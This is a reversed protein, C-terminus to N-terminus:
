KDKLEYISPTAFELSFKKGMELLQKSMSSNLAVVAEESLYNDLTEKYYDAGGTFGDYGALIVRKAGVRSLFKLVMIGTVDLDNSLLSDYDLVYVTKKVSISINSTVALLFDGSQLQEFRKRNSVFVLDPIINDPVFNLSIIFPSESEIRKKIQENHTKISGGPAIVLVDKGNIKETLEKIASSDEVAHSMEDHYINEILTKTFLDRESVPLKELLEAIKTIGITKRDLLYSSYNPHIGMIASLYYPESFGWHFKKYIPLIINDIMELLPIINYRNDINNNIYHTILETNLNGAGRGMGFVSSDIILHRDTHIELLMMSNAFSLQMNNHSHFGLCIDKALNHDVLYFMRLLDNKYMSGLTDVIYFAFPNISNVDKILTLLQEDTYTITGVPQIFVKYGKEMLDLAFKKTEEWETGHFTLRIGDINNPKRPAIEEPKIEGFAIMAVFMCNEKKNNPLVIQDVSGYLSYVPDNKGSQLFGCEIIEINAECLKEVVQNIQKVGFCFNNVYGGDRLTCDLISIKM